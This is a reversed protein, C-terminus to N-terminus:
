SAEVEIDESVAAELDEIMKRDLRPSNDDDDIVSKIAAKMRAHSALVISKAETTVPFCGEGKDLDRDAELRSLAESIKM